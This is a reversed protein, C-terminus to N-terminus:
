TSGEVTLKLITQMAKEDSIKFKNFSFFKM